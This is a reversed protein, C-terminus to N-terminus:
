KKILKNHRKSKIRALRKNNLITDIKNSPYTFLHNSQKNLKKLEQSDLFDDFLAEKLTKELYTDDINNSKIFYELDTNNINITLKLM